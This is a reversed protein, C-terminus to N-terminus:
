QTALDLVAALRSDHHRVVQAHHLVGISHEFDEITVQCM